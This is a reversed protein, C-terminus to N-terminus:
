TAFTVPAVTFLTSFDDSLDPADHLALVGQPAQRGFGHLEWWMARRVQHKPLDPKRAQALVVVHDVHDHHQFGHFM